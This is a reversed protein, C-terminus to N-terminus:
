VLAEDLIIRLHRLTQKNTEDFDFTNQYYKIIIEALLIESIDVGADGDIGRVIATESSGFASSEGFVVLLVVLLTRSVLYQYDFQTNLIQELLQKKHHV